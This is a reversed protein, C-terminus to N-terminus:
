GREETLRERAAEIIARDEVRQDPRPEAAAARELLRLAEERREPARALLIRALLLQNGVYDPDVAYAQDALPVARERDVWGSVLPVRPLRAHLEALLRLAGGQETDPALVRTVLAYDRIRNAVGEYVSRLLGALQSWAGWAVASWFYLQAADDRALGAEELSGPLAEPGLEHLALREVGADAARTARDLLERREPRTGAVFEAEFWLARLLKWRAEVNAPDAELATAYAEIAAAASPGEARQQWTADARPLALLLALALPGGTM